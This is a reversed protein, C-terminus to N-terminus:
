RGIWLEPNLKQTGKRLQFHLIYNGNEDRSVAGILDRAKLKQGQKVIVSSLNCYMSFFRGHRVLVNYVGGFEFVKSVEGDFIVRARAGSRGIYNTGKNDLRVGKLGSVNYVGFRTGLMYNGTIPVPLRGKNREFNSNLRHEEAAMWKGSSSSSASSKSKTSTPTSKGKSATTGKGASKKPTTAAKRAEEAKRAAEARAAEEARKRAKEIEIEVLEDIKRDLADLQKRQEKVTTELTSRKKKLTKVEREERLHQENLLKRQEMVEHMLKSREGKTALLENQKALLQGRKALVQEGLVRQYAAYERAYRARRYMQSFSRASFVFVLPSNEAKQAYAYRLSQTYKDKKQALEKSRQAVQRELKGMQKELQAIDAELQKIHRLRAELQNEIFTLNKQKRNVDKATKGLEQSSKSLTKQLKSKQAKLNTIQKTDKTKPAPAAKKKPKSSTRKKTTAKKKATTQTKKATVKPKNRRAQQAETATLGGLLLTCLLFLRFFKMM